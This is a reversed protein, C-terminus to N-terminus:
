LDADVTPQHVLLSRARRPNALKLRFRSSEDLTDTVFAPGVWPRIHDRARDLHAAFEGAQWVELPRLQAGEGVEVAFM